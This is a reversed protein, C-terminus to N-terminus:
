AFASATVSASVFPDLRGADGPHRHEFHVGRVTPRVDMQIGSVLRSGRQDETMSGSSPHSGSIQHRHRADRARFPDADREDLLGVADGPSASGSRGCWSSAAQVATTSWRSAPSSRPNASTTPPRERPARTAQRVASAVPATPTSQRAKGSCGGRREPADAVGLRRCSSSSTVTGVNTTCPARSRNPMGGAVALRVTTCTGPSWLKLVSRWATAAATCAPKGWDHSLCHPRRHGPLRRPLEFLRDPVQSVYVRTFSSKLHLQCHMIIKPWTESVQPGGDRLWWCCALLDGLFDGGPRSHLCAGAAAALEGEFDAASLDTVQVAVM